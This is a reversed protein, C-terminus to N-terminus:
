GKHINISLLEKLEEDVELQLFVDSIDVKAFCIKSNLKSFLYELVSLSYYHADLSYNLGSLYDACIWVKENATKVVVILAAQM